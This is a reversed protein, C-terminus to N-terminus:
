IVEHKANSQKRQYYILLTLWTGNALVLFVGGYFSLTLGHQPYFFLNWLGWFTFFMTTIWNIGHVRKEKMIKIISPVIFLGGCIEFIGNVLDTYEQM